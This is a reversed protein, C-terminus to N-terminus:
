EVWDEHIRGTEESLTIPNGEGYLTLSIRDLNGSVQIIVNKPPTFVSFGQGQEVKFITVSELSPPFGFYIEVVAVVMKFCVKDSDEKRVLFCLAGYKRNGSMNTVSTVVNEQYISFEGIVSRVKNRTVGRVWNSYIPVIFKFGDAYSEM